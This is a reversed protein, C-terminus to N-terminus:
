LLRNWGELAVRHGEVYKKRFIEAEERNADIQIPYEIAIKDFEDKTIEVNGTIADENEICSANYSISYSSIGCSSENTILLLYM